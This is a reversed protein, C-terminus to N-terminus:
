AAKIRDYCTYRDRGTRKSHYLAADAGVLLDQPTQFPSASDYTAVGLSLTISFSKGAGGDVSQTRSNDLIRQAVGDALAADVGPLLLVFEDGGYRAVIDTDRLSAQLLNAVEKLM